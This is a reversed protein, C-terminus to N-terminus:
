ARTPDAFHHFVMSIFVLDISADGLPIAEGSGRLLRVADGAKKAAEALMKESPEVGIVRAGFHGALASSYRGTGCGLDLIDRVRVDAVAAGITRLWGELVHPAYARGADYSAPMTTQDYDM